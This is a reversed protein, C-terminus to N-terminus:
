MLKSDGCLIFTQSERVCKFIISTNYSALQKTCLFSYCSISDPHTFHHHHYHHTHKHTHTLTHTHTHTHTRAHAHIHTLTHTHTSPPIVFYVQGLFCSDSFIIYLVGRKNRVELSNNKQENYAIYIYGPVRISRIKQGIMRKIWLILQVVCLTNCASNFGTIRSLM